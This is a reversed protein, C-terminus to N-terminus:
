EHDCRALHLHHVRRTLRLKFEGTQPNSIEEALHGLQIVLGAAGGHAGDVFNLSENEVLRLEPSDHGLSRVNSQLEKFNQRYANAVSVLLDAPQTVLGHAIRDGPESGDPM